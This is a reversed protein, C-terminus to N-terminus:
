GFARCREELRAIRELSENVVEVATCRRGSALQDRIDLLSSSVATM